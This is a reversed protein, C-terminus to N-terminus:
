VNYYAYPSSEWVSYQKKDFETRSIELGLYINSTLLQKIGFGYLFGNSSKSISNTYPIEANYSDHYRIDAFEMGLKLFCLSNEALYYGPEVTIGWNNKIKANMPFTGYSAQINSTGADEAGANFHINAAFNFRNINKSYGIAIQGLESTKGVSGGYGSDQELLSSSTNGALGIGFQIYPGNFLGGDYQSEAHKTNNAFTYGLSVLAQTQSPNLSFEDENMSKKAFEKKSVEASVYLNESILHKLGFGYLMGDSNKSFKGDTCISGGCGYSDNFEANGRVWGLKLYGLSDESFYYGPEISVGWINKIKTKVTWAPNYGNGNIWNGSNDGGFDRFINTAINFRDFSKSYGLLLQSSLNSSTLNGGGYTEWNYKNQNNVAGVGLQVYPGDFSAANVKSIIVLALAIVCIKNM